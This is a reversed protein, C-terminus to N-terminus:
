FLAAVMRLRRFPYRGFFPGAIGARVPNRQRARVTVTGEARGAGAVADASPSGDGPELEGASPSGDESEDASPSGDGPESEDMVDVLVEVLAEGEELSLSLSVSLPTPVPVPLVAVPVSVPVSVSPGRWVSESWARLFHLGLDKKLNWEKLGLFKKTGRVRKMSPGPPVIVTETM